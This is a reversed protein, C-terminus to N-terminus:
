YDTVRESLVQQSGTGFRCRHVTSDPAFGHGYVTIITGGENSGLSISISDTTPLVDILCNTPGCNSSLELGGDTFAVADVGDAGKQSLSLLLQDSTRTTGWAPLTCRVATPSLRAAVVTVSDSIGTFTCLYGSHSFGYGVLDLTIDVDATFHLSTDARRDWGQFVDIMHQPPLAVFEPISALDGGYRSLLPGDKDVVALSVSRASDFGPSPCRLQTRSLITAPTDVSETSANYFFRCAYSTSLTDFGFGSVFLPKGGKAPAASSNVNSWEAVYTM